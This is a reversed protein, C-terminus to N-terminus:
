LGPPAVSLKKDGEWIGADVHADVDVWDQGPKVMVSLPVPKTACVLTCHFPLVQGMLVLEPAEVAGQTVVMVTSVLLLTVANVAVIVGARKELGPIATTM